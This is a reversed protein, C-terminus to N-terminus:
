LPLYWIQGRLEDPDACIAALALDDIARGISVSLGVLILGAMSRDERIRAIATGAMTNLDHSLVVRGLEAAKRLVEEDSAGSLEVDSTAVVDIASGRRRLGRVIRGNFNEDALFRIM